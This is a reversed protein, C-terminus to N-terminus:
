ARSANPSNPPKRLAQDYQIVAHAPFAAITTAQTPNTSTNQFVEVM